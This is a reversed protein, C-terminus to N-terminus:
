PGGCLYIIDTESEGPRYLLPIKRCNPPYERVQGVRHVRDFLLNHANDVHLIDACLTKVLEGCNEAGGGEKIGYFM